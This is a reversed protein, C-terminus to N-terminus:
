EDGGVRNARYWDFADVLAARHASPNRTRDRYAESVATRLPTPLRYWCARCALQARGVSRGCRGPCAHVTM